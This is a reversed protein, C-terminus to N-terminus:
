GKIISRATNLSGFKRRFKIDGEGWNELVMDKYKDPLNNMDKTFCMEQFKAKFHEVHKEKWDSAKNAIEHRENSIDEEKYNLSRISLYWTKIPTTLVRPDTDHSAVVSRITTEFIRFPLLM